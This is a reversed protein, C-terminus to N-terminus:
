RIEVANPGTVLGVLTTRSSPNLVRISQGIRGDELAQASGSLQIGPAAYTLTVLANRQVDAAPKVQLTTVAVGAALKRTAQMGELQNTQTITNAFVSKADVTKTTINTAEIRQGAAVPSALVPIAVAEAWVAGSFTMMLALLAPTRM